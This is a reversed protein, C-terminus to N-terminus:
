KGQLIQAAERCIRRAEEFTLHMPAENIDVWKGEVAESRDIESEFPNIVEGIFYQVTKLIHEKGARFSYQETLVVDSLLEKKIKLATEENLERMATEIQTEGENAHGKPFSWHGGLHRIIFVEYREKETVHVPVIGFSFDKKM